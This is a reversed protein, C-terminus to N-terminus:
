DNLWTKFNAPEICKGQEKKIINGKEDYLVYVPHMVLKLHKYIKRHENNQLSADIKIVEYGDLAQAVNKENFVSNAMIKGKVDWNAAIFVFSKKENIKNTNLINKLENLTSADGEFGLPANIIPYEKRQKQDHALVSQVYEDTIVLGPEPPEEPCYLATDGFASTSILLLYALYRNLKM